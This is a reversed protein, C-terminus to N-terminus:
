DATSVNRARGVPLLALAGALYSIAMIVFASNFGFNDICLGIVYSWVAGALFTLAFFVSYAMDLMERGSVDALLAQVLSGQSYVVLGMLIIDVTLAAINHGAAMLGLTSVLSLLYVITCLRKRGFSDAMRGVILPGAVSGVMLLTYLTVYQAPDVRLSQQFYIPVYNMVVGLGRGGAAATGALVILAINRNKLPSLWDRGASLVGGKKDGNLPRLKRQEPILLICLTGVLLPIAAFIAMSARWGFAVLALTGLSPILLTGANGGAFNIAFATGRLKKGFGDSILSNGVPHQPSQSMRGLLNFAFFTPFGGALATLCMSIALFVNGFGLLMRRPVVRTLFGYIGQLLSSVSNGVALMLGLQAYSFGFEAMVHPYIIPMLASYMHTVSHAAAVFGLTRYPSRKASPIEQVAAPTSM